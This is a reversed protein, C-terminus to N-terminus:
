SGTPPPAGSEARRYAERCKAALMALSDQEVDTAKWTGLMPVGFLGNVREFVVNVNVVEDYCRGVVVIVKKGDPEDLVDGIAAFSDEPVFPGFTEVEGQVIARRLKAALEPSAEKGVADGIAGTVGAALDGLIGGGVANKAEAKGVEVYFRGIVQAFRDVDLHREVVTVDHERVGRGLELLAFHVSQRFWGFAIAVVIALVVIVTMLKKM